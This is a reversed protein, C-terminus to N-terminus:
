SHLIRGGVTPDPGRGWLVLRRAFMWVRDFRQSGHKRAKRKSSNVRLDLSM